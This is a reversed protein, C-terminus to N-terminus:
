SLPSSHYCLGTQSILLHSNQEVLSFAYLYTGQLEHGHLSKRRMQEGNQGIELVEETKQFIAELLFHQGTQALEVTKVVVFSHPSEGPSQGM